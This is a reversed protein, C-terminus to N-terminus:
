VNKKYNVSCYYVFYDVEVLELFLKWCCIVDGEIWVNEVKVVEVGFEVFFLGIVLGVLVSAM